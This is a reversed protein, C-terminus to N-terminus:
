LEAYVLRKHRQFLPLSDAYANEVFTHSAIDSCSRAKHYHLQFLPLFHQHVLM